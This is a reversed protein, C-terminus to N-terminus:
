ADVEQIGLLALVTELDPYREMNMYTTVCELRTLIQKKTQDYVYPSLRKVKTKKKEEMPEYTYWTAKTEPDRTYGFNEPNEIIINWSLFDDGM